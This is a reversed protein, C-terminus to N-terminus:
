ICIQDLATAIVMILTNDQGPEIKVEYTDRIHVWKKPIEAIQEGEVDFEISM